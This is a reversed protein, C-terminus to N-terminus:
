VEVVKLKEIITYEYNSQGILQLKQLADLESHFKGIVEFTFTEDAKYHVGYTDLKADTLVANEHLICLVYQKKIKTKM